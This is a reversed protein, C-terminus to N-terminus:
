LHTVQNRIMTQRRHSCNNSTLKHSLTTCGNLYSFSAIASVVDQDMDVGPDRMVQIVEVVLRIFDKEAAVQNGGSGGTLKRLVDLCGPVLNEPLTRQGIMERVLAFMKRRGIEDGYDVNVAIRFLEHVIFELDLQEAEWVPDTQDEFPNVDDEDNGDHRTKVREVLHNYSSQIRFALATIVPLAQELRTEDKRKVCFDTYTRVLFAKEPSLDGWYSDDFKVKDLIEPRAEWIAHLSSEAVDGGVLDFTELFKVLDGGL